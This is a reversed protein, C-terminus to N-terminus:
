ILASLLYTLLLFTGGIIFLLIHDKRTVPHHRNDVQETQFSPKSPSDSMRIDKNHNIHRVHGIMFLYSAHGGVAWLTVVTMSVGYM